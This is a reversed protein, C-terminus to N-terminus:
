FVDRLRRAHGTDIDVNVSMGDRLPPDDAHRTLRIRIPIRQVVKVWNGSANQAPLVSFSAGSAPSLSELVGDWRTGPYTDVTVTAHDGPKAWTLQTEKPFAEVWVDHTSVLGFAATAAALYQGPQLSEVSTVVGDFPALVQTHTLQRQAEALRAAADRYEPTTRVDIAPDNALKALQVRSQVDMSAAMQRDTELKFRAQDYEARTVGGTKVLGAFRALDAEDSQVQSQRAATERLARQYDQKAADMRLGAANMAARASDVANQFPAPDLRFLLDGRRVAQGEHVAVSQVIGSVDTAVSLKAARVYADDTSFGGGAGLWLKASVVLIAAVGLVMLAPRLGPIARRTTAAQPSAALDRAAVSQSM